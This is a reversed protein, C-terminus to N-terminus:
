SFCTLGLVLLWYYLKYFGAGHCSNSVSICIKPPRIIIEDGYARNWIKDM